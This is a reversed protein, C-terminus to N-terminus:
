NNINHLFYVFQLGSAWGVQFHRWVLKHIAFSKWRVSPRHQEKLRQFSWISGTTPQRRHSPCYGTTVHPLQFTLCAIDCCTNLTVVKQLLVHKWDKDVSILRMTCWVTSFNLRHRLLGSGRAELRGYWYVREGTAHGLRLVLAICIMPLM